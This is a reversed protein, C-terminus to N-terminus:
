WEVDWANFGKAAFETDTVPGENYSSADITATQGDSKISWAMMETADIEISRQAPVIYNKKM